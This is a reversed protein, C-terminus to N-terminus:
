SRGGPQVGIPVTNQDRLIAEIIRMLGAAVAYYTAQKRAIIHYAAERTQQFIGDLLKRDCRVGHHACFEELKM